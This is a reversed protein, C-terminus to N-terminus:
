RHGFGSYRPSGNKAYYNMGKKFLLNATLLLIASVALILAPAKWGGFFSNPVKSFLVTSPLWAALGVPILTCFVTQWLVSIGGLPYSKLSTFLDRAVESIEEAAAPAYFALCSIIYIVSVIIINSCIVSFLYTLIWMASINMQLRHISYISLAIGCVLMSSGSVPCFGGTILQIWLPVPQIAAHDLQGRGIVRSISGTNSGAFFLVFVGDVVTAYSLMFLIENENMGGIGGFQVSLLFVGSVAAAASITDAAIQLLCYRTDRLFWMLDMKSYIGFLRFLTKINQIHQRSTKHDAAL